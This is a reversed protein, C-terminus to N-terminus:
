LFSWKSGVQYPAGGAFFDRRGDGKEKHGMKNALGPM